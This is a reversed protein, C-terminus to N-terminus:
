KKISALSKQIELLSKGKTENVFFYTFPVCLFVCLGSIWYAISEGVLAHFPQFSLASLFAFLSSSSSFCFSAFVKLSHPFMEGVLTTPIPGLGYNYTVFFIFLAILPLWYLNNGDFDLSLLYFHTGLLLLSVSVGLGSIFLLQRRGFIDVLFTATFGAVITSFSLVIVVTSPTLNVRSERVIIELYSCM